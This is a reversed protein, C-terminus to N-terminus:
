NLTSIEVMGNQLVMWYKKKNNKDTEEVKFIEQQLQTRNENELYIDQLKNNERENV